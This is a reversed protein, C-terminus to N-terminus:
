YAQAIVLSAEELSLILDRLTRFTNYDKPALPEAPLKDVLAKVENSKRAKTIAKALTEKRLEPRKGAMIAHLYDLKDALLDHIPFAAQLHGWLADFPWDAIAKTNKNLVALMLDALMCYPKHNGSTSDKEHMGVYGYSLRHSQQALLPTVMNWQNEPPFNSHRVVQVEGSVQKLFGELWTANAWQDPAAFLQRDTDQYLAKTTSLCQGIAPANFTWAEKYLSRGLAHLRNQNTLILITKM